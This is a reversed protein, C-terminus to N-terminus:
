PMLHFTTLVLPRTPLSTVTIKMNEEVHTGETHRQELQTGQKYYRKIGRRGFALEFGVELYM